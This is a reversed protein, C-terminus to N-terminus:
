RERDLCQNTYSEIENNCIKLKEGQETVKQRAAILDNMVSAREIKIKTYQARVVETARFLDRETRGCDDLVLQQM